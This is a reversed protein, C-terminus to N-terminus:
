IDSSRLMDSEATWESALADSIEAPMHLNINAIQIHSSKERRYPYIDYRVYGLEESSLNDPYSLSGKSDGISRSEAM